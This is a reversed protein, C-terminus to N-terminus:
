KEQASFFETLLQIFFKQKAGFPVRGELDSYLHLELKAQLDEPISITNPHSRLIKKPRPM